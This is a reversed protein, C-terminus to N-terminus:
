PYQELDRIYMIADVTRDGHETRVGYFDYLPVSRFNLAEYFEGAIRNEARAIAYIRTIGEKECEKILLDVLRRGVGIRREENPVTIDFIEYSRGSGARYDLVGRSVKLRYCSM